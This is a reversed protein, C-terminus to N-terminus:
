MFLTLNGSFTEKQLRITTNISPFQVVPGDAEGNVVTGRLGNVLKETLNCLLMVPSGVKIWLSSPALVRQLYKAEGTDEAQYKFLYGPASLVRGRNYSDTLENTAFLKLSIDGPKDVPKQLGHLFNFTEPTSIGRSVENVCNIFKIDSQRMVESLIVKHSIASTFNHSQFCFEGEDSYLKNRVPPLQYFDGSLIIQIGGFLLEENKLSCVAEVQNFLRESLM